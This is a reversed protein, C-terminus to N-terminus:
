HCDASDARGARRFDVVGWIGFGVVPAAVALLVKAAVSGGATYGWYALAAVIGTEMTVRMVLIVTRLPTLTSEGRRGSATQTREGAM